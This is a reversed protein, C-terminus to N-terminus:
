ESGAARKEALWREFFENKAQRELEKLDPEEPVLDPWFADRPKEPLGMPRAALTLPVKLLEGGRLVEFEVDTGPKLDKVSDMFSDQVTELDAGWRRGNLAVIVDGVKLDARSAPTDPQVLRIRVGARLGKEGAIVVQAALMSVGVYGEGDNRQHEGIVSELLAERLRARVEPESAASFERLLWAQAEAPRVSAWEMLQNRAKIREQYRESDLSEIWAPDPEERGSVFAPLLGLCSGAILITTLRAIRM